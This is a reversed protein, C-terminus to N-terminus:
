VCTYVLKLCVGKWHVGGGKKYPDVPGYIYQIGKELNNCATESPGLGFIYLLGILSEKQKELLNLQIWALLPTVMIGMSGSYLQKWTAFSYRNLWSNLQICFPLLVQKSKDLIIQKPNQKQSLWCPVHCSTWWRYCETKWLIQLNFIAM